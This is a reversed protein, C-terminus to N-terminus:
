IVYIRLVYAVCELLLVEASIAPAEAKRKIERFKQHNERAAAAKAADVREEVPRVVCQQGMLTGGNFRSIATAVHSADEFQVFGFGRSLDTGKQRVWHARSVPGVVSFLSALEKDSHAVGPTANETRSGGLRVFIKRDEHLFDVASRPEAQAAEQPAGGANIAAAM